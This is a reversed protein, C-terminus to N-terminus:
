FSQKVENKVVAGVILSHILGVLSYIVVTLPIAFAPNSFKKTMSVAMKIQEETLQSNQERMISGMKRFIEDFYEPFLMQFVSSFVSYLVAAIVCVVIGIKLCQGFSIFGLNLKFKYNTCALYIFIFPMILFNLVNIAIGFSKNTQPDINLAYGITFELIMFLGFFVGYILASKTPSTKNEMKNILNISLYLLDM